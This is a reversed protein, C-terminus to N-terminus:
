GAGILALFEKDHAFNSFYDGLRAQILSLVESRPPIRRLIEMMRSRDGMMAYASALNYMLDTIEYDDTALSEAIHFDALAEMFRHMRKLMAGRYTFLRARYNADLSEPISAVADNYARLAGVNTHPGDRANAYAVGRSFNAEFDDPRHQAYEDLIRAASLWHGVGLEGHALARLSDPDISTDSKRENQLSRVSKNLEEVLPRLNDVASATMARGQALDVLNLGAEEMQESVQLALVRTEDKQKLYASYHEDSQMEPRFRTQLLFMCALFLPVNLVAAFVLVPPLWTPSAVAGAATLFAGDLVILAVFWAALLQIPSTIKEPAIENKTM